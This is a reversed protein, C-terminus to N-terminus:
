CRPGPRFSGTITYRGPSSVRVTTWGDPRQILCAQPGHVALWRSWHLRVLVDDTSSADVTVGLDTSHVVAAGSVLSPAREVAYLTWAGGRWVTRLYPQGARILRAERRGVTAAPATSLAILSVGNDRLWHGYRDGTLNGDFFMPNRQTDAQRLWGRAIPVSGPVYAAEWYKATPVVEVRGIPRRRGLESLLPRFYGDLTTPDGADRLEKVAVPHQWAAVVSLLVALGARGATPRMLAPPLRLWSPREAYGCLVPLAFTASLRGANLGVPTTVVATALVGAASLLAGVRVPRYRVFAAVVLSVGAARQIDAGIVNMPGNAGFLVATSVMPVGAGVAVLLGDLGSATGTTRRWGYSLALATGALGVFLGAVPSATAALAAGGTGGVRRLWPRGSTLALLASLGCVLGVLFTVRGSVLNGFLGIVGLLGALQPRKAGTRLLVLLLVMSSVVAALTGVWRVGTVGGGLGAMVPPALVSYGYPSVGGYWGFDLVAGGHRVWFDAYAVQAALDIGMPPALLFIVAAAVAAVATVGVALHQRRGTARAGFGGSTRSSGFVDVRM